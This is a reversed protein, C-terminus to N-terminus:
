CIVVLVVLISKQKTEAVARMRCVYFGEDELELIKLQLDGSPLLSFRNDPSIERGAKLWTIQSRTPDNSQCELVTDNGETQVQDRPLKSFELNNSNQCKVQFNM